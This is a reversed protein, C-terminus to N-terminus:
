EENFEFSIDVSIKGGELTETINVDKFWLEVNHKLVKKHFNAVAVADFRNDVLTNIIWSGDEQQVKIIYWFKDGM